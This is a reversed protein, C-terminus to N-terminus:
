KFFRDARAQYVDFLEKMGSAKLPQIVQSDWDKDIDIEGKYIKVAIERSLSQFNTEYKELVTAEEATPTSMQNKMSHYVTNPFNIVAKQADGKVPDLGNIESEMDSFRLRPFVNNSWISGGSCIGSLSAAEWNSNGADGIAVKFGNKVEYTVGEIGWASLEAFEDSYLIDLFISAAKQDKLNKTFATRYWDALQPSEIDSVPDIGAKGQIPM